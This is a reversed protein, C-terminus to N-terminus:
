PTAGAVRMAATIMRNIEIACEVAGIAAAMHEVKSTANRCDTAFTRKKDAWTSCADRAAKLGTLYRDETM